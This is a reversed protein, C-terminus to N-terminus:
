EEIKRRVQEDTLGAWEQQLRAQIQAKMEVSDFDKQRSM